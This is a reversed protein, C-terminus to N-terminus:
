VTRRCTRCLNFLGCAVEMVLDVFGKKINRFVASVIQFIKIGALSHEVGVREQSIKRNEAKQQATLEQGRPKKTPQITTTGEPTYGQFGTDQYLISGEPFTYGEEDACSKDHHSGPQTAGLGLVEGSAKETLVINKKTHRKKRGSYEERQQESDQPRRTPRDTGDIIFEPDDCFELVEELDAASRAPLQREQGLVQQLIPTLRHIWHNAQGQSFGFWCALVEQTPYHRFYFLIFFLKDECTALASKRGAGQARQRPKSQRQHLDEQYAAQFDSLLQDFEETTLGTLVRFRHACQRAESYTM